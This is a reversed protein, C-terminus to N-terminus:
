NISFRSAHNWPLMNSTKKTCHIIAEIVRIRAKSELIWQPFIIVEKKKENNTTLSSILNPRCIICYFVVGPSGMEKAKTCRLQM